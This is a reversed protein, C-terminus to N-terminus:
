HSWSWFQAQFRSTLRNSQKSSFVRLLHKYPWVSCLNDQEKSAALLRAAFSTLSVQKSNYLIKRVYALNKVPTPILCNIYVTWIVDYLFYYKTGKRKNLLILFIQWEGFNAKLAEATNASTFMHFFSFAKETETHCVPCHSSSFSYLPLFGKCFAGKQCHRRPFVAPSSTPTTPKKIPLLLYFINAPRHTACRM